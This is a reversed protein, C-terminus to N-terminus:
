HRRYVDLQTRMLLSASSFFVAIRMETGAAPQVEPRVTRKTGAGVGMKMHEANEGVGAAQEAM